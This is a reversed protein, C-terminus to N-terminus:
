MAFYSNLQIVKAALTSMLIDSMNGSHMKCIAWGEIGLSITKLPM